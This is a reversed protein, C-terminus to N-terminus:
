RPTAVAQMAGRRAAACAALVAALELAALTYLNIGTLVRAGVSDQLLTISVVSNLAIILAMTVVALSRRRNTSHV